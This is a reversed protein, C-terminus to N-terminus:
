PVSFPPLDTSHTVGDIVGDAIAMSLFLTVLCMHRKVPDDALIM